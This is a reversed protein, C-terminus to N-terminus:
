QGLSQKFVTFANELDLNLQESDAEPLEQTAHMESVKELWGRLKKVESEFGRPLWRAGELSSVLALLQPHVRNAARYGLTITDSTTIFQEAVAVAQNSTGPPIRHEVTAPVGSYLLRHRAKRCDSLGWHRMFPDVDSEISGKLTKFKALLSQCEREYEQAGMLSQVYAKELKETARILAYLEASDEVEDEGSPGEVEVREKVEM